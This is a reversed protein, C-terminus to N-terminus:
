DFDEDNENVWVWNEIDNNEYKKKGKKQPNVTYSKATSKSVSTSPKKKKPPTKKKNTAM